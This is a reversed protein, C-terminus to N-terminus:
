NNKILNIIADNNNSVIYILYDNYTTYLANEVLEKQEPFYNMGVWQSNYSDIFNEFEKKTSENSPHSIFVITADDYKTSSLMLTEDFKSIDISYRNSITDTSVVEHNSFYESSSLAQQVKKLDLKNNKVGCGVVCFLCILSLLIKKM